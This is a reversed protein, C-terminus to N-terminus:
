NSSKFQSYKLIASRLIKRNFYCMSEAIPVTANRRIATECVLGCDCSLGCVCCDYFITLVRLNTIFYHQAFTSAYKGAVHPWYDM